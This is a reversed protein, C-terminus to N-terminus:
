NTSRHQPQFPPTGSSTLFILWGQAEAVTVPGSSLPLNPRHVVGIRRMVIDSRAKRVGVDMVVPYPFDRPKRCVELALAFTFIRLPFMWFGGQKVLFGELGQYLRNTSHSLHLKNM